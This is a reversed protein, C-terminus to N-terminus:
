EGKQQQQKVQENRIDDGLGEGKQLKVAMQLILWTWMIFLAYLVLLLAYFFHWGPILGLKETVSYFWCPYLVLYPYIVIRTTIFVVAFVIFILDAVKTYGSYLVIKGLELLPDATDTIILVTLGVRYFGVAYSAGILLLATVHHIIMQLFDSQKPEWFICIISYTYHSLQLLYLARVNVPMAEPWVAWYSTVDMFWSEGSLVYVDLCWLAFYNVFRWGATQFKFLEEETPLLKGNADRKPTSTTKKKKDSKKKNDSGERLEEPVTFIPAINKLVVFNLSIHIAAIVLIYYGYTVLDSWFQFGPNYVRLHSEFSEM